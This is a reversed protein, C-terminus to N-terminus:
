PNLAPRSPSTSKRRKPLPRQLGTLGWSLLFGVCSLSAALVAAWVFGANAPVSFPVEVGPRVLIYRTVLFSEVITTGVVPGVASGLNRFTQTVGTQIGLEEPSVSLVIVNTTAILVAVTGVLLPISLLIVLFVTGHDFALGTAGFGMMGFGLITIPKPAWNSVAWGLVPGFALMSMVSPLGLLGMQFETLGFGPAVPDEILIVLTVFFLFQVTGLLVGAVNSIWINRQKLAAFSVAPAVTHTERYGFLVAGLLAILFFEPVGWVLSGWRVASFSTWGWSTGETVAFLFMALTVGLFGIGAVDVPKPERSPSERVVFAALALLLFAFPIVTHFTVQWGFQQTVYGGGVLGLGAGAGFMASIVGQYTGVRRAPAVEPVMAYALPFMAMGIGQLARAGILLYIQNPRSVGVASGINPTFGALSVAVGYVTMVVLLTRKKGYRDGLKGFVPTAVTGVLLYASLVWAITTYPVGSFFTYFTQFGPVVMTEVYTVMLAMGTLVVLVARASRPDFEAGTATRTEDQDASDM